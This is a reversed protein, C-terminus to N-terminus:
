AVQNSLIAAVAGLDPDILDPSVHGEGSEMYLGVRVRKGKVVVWTASVLPFRRGGLYRREESLYARLDQKRLDVGPPMEVEGPLSAAAGAGLLCGRRDLLVVGYVCESVRVVAPPLVGQYVSSRGVRRDVFTGV